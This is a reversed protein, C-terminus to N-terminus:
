PPRHLARRRQREFLGGAHGRRPGEDQSGRAGTGGRPRPFADDGCVCTRCARRHTRACRLGRSDSALPTHPANYALYMFFPRNRNAEIARVAERSLYDTMYLDPTFRPENNKRVSFALLDWIFQDVPDFDQKASVINPDNPDGFMAAGSYFRLSEDFGQDVPRMGPTQGLHWKGLMVNHYGADGLVEPLTMEEPPVGQESMPPVESVLDERFISPPSGAPKAKDMLQSTFKGM